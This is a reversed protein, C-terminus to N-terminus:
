QPKRSARMMEIPELGLLPADWAVGSKKDCWASPHARWRKYLPRGSLLASAEGAARVERKKAPTRAGRRGAKRDSDGQRARNDRSRACRNARGSFIRTYRRDCASIM